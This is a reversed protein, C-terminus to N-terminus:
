VNAGGHLTQAATAPIALYTATGAAAATTRMKYLIAQELKSDNVYTSADINVIRALQQLTNRNM